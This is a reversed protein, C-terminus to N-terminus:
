RDEAVSSLYVSCATAFCGHTECGPLHGGLDVRLRLRPDNEVLSEFLEAREREFRSVRAATSAAHIPCEILVDGHSSRTWRCGCQAVDGEFVRRFSDGTGM